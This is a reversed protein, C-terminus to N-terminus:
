GTLSSLRPHGSRFSPLHSGSCCLTRPRISRRGTSTHANPPPKVPRPSVPVRRTKSFVAPTLAVAFITFEARPNKSVRDCAATWPARALRGGVSAWFPCFANSCVSRERSSSVVATVIHHEFSSNHGGGSAPGFRRFPLTSTTNGFLYM